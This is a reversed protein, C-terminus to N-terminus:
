ALSLLSAPVGANALTRRDHVLKEGRKCAEYDANDLGLYSAIDKLLSDESEDLKGDAMSLRWLLDYLFACSARNGYALFRNALDRPTIERRRATVFNGICMAREGDTLDMHEFIDNALDLEENTVKGDAMVIKAMLGSLGLLFYGKLVKDDATSQRSDRVITTVLLAVFAIALIFVMQIPEM